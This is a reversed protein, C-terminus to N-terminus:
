RGVEALKPRQAEAKAKEAEEQQKRQVQYKHEEIALQVTQQRVQFATQLMNLVAGHIPVPQSALEKELKEYLHNLNHRATSVAVNTINGTMQELTAEQM